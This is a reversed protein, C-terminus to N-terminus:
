KIVDVEILIKDFINLKETKEVQFLEMGVKNKIDKYDTNKDTKIKVIKEM